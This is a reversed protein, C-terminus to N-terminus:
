GGKDLLDQVIGRLIKLHPPSCQYQRSLVPVNDTVELHCVTGKATGRKDSFLAPFSRKLENIEASNDSVVPVCPCVLISAVNEACLFVQSPSRCPDLLQCEFDKEPHFAFSYTGTAFDM